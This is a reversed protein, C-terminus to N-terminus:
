RSKPELGPPLFKAVCLEVACEACRMRTGRDRCWRRLGCHVHNWWDVGICTCRREADATRCAEATRHARKWSMDVGAHMFPSRSHLAAEAVCSAWVGTGVTALAPPPASATAVLLRAISSSALTDLSHPLPLGAPAGADSPRSSPTNARRGDPAGAIGRYSPSARVTRGACPYRSEATVLGRGTHYGWDWHCARLRGFDSTSRPPSPLAVPRTSAAGDSSAVACTLPHGATLLSRLTSRPSQSCARLHSSIPLM